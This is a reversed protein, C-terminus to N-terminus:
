LRKKKFKALNITIITVAIIIGITLFIINYSLIALKSEGDDDDDDEEDTPIEICKGASIWAIWAPSTEEYISLLAMKNFPPPILSSNYLFAWINFIPNLGKTINFYRIVFDAEETKNSEWGPYGEWFWGIETFAIPKTTHDKIECYYNLPMDNPNKFILCPYTTFAFFDAKSINNLLSWDNLNITDNGGDNFIGGQLGKMYELQFITFVKTEPSWFKIIEYTENFLKTFNYFIQPGNTRNYIDRANIENGIGFYKPKYTKTYNIVWGMHTSNIKDPTKTHISIIPTFGKSLFLDTINHVTGTGNRLDVPNSWNGIWTLCTGADKAKIFFNTINEPSFDKPSISVGKVQCESSSEIRINSENNKKNLNSLLLIQSSSCSYGSSFCSVFITLLIVCLFLNRKNM